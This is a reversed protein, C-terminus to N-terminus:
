WDEAARRRTTRKRHRGRPAGAGQEGAMQRELADWDPNLIALAALAYNRCDLAENREHGPIKEWRWRSGTGTKSLM